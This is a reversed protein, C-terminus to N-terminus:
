VKGEQAEQPEVWHVVKEELEDEHVFEESVVRGLVSIGAEVVTEARGSELPHWWELKEGGALKRYACSSPLWGFEHAGVSNFEVCDPVLEHRKPYQTCRAGRLDLYKCVVSTYVVQATDEDELKVMCCRACGDCLAEWQQDTMQELPTDHWWSM